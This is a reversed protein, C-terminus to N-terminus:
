DEYDDKYQDFYNREWETTNSSSVIPSYEDYMLHETDSIDSGKYEEISKYVRRDKTNVVFVGYGGYNNGSTGIERGSKYLVYGLGFKGNDNACKVAFVGDLVESVKGVYKKRNEPEIISVRMDPHVVMYEIGDITGVQRSEKTFGKGYSYGTVVKDTNPIHVQFKYTGIIQKQMESQKLSDM